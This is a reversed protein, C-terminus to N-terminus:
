LGPPQFWRDSIRHDLGEVRRPHALWDPIISRFAVAFRNELQPKNLGFSDLPNKTLLFGVL